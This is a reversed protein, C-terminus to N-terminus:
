VIPCTFWVRRVMTDAPHVAGTQATAKVFWFPDLVCVNRTGNALLLRNLAVVAAVVVDGSVAKRGDLTFLEDHKM